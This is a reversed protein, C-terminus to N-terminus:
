VAGLMENRQQIKIVMWIILGMAIVLPTWNWITESRIYFNQYEQDDLDSDNFYKNHAVTVPKSLIVYALGIILISLIFIVFLFPQAKKILMM